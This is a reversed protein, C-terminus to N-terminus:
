RASTLDSAGSHVADEVVPPKPKHGKGGDRREGGSWVRRSRTDEACRRRRALPSAGPCTSSIPFFHRFYRDADQKTASHPVLAGPKLALSRTISGDPEVQEQRVLPHVINNRMTNFEQVARDLRWHLINTHRLKVLLDGVTLRARAEIKEIVGQQASTLSDFHHLRIRDPLADVLVDFGACSVIIVDFYHGAGLHQQALDAYERYLWVEVWGHVPSLPRRISM